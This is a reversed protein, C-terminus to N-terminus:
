NVTVTSTDNVNSDTDCSALVHYTGPTDPATYVGDSKIKGGTDGETVSWNVRTDRCQTVTVTFAKTQGPSLTISGPDITVKGTSGSGLGCGVLVLALVAAIGGRYFTRM